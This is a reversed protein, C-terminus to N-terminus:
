EKPAEPNLNQKMGPISEIVQDIGRCIQQVMLLISRPKESPIKRLLVDIVGLSGVWTLVHIIQDKYQNFLEMFHTM